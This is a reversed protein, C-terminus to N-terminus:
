DVPTTVIAEISQNPNNVKLEDEIMGSVSRLSRYLRVDSNSEIRMTKGEVDIRTESGDEYTIEVIHSAVKIGALYKNDRWGGEITSIINQFEPSDPTLMVTM